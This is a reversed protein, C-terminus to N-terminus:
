PIRGTRAVTVVREDGRCCPSDGACEPHSCRFRFRVATGAEFPGLTIAYRAAGAMVGGVPGLPAERSTAWGDISWALGGPCNTRITVEDGAQIEGVPASFTWLARHPV